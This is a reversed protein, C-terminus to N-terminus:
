QVIGECNSATSRVFPVAWFAKGNRTGVLHQSKADFTLSVAEGSAALDVKGGANSGSLAPGQLCPGGCTDIHGTLATGQQVLTMPSGTLCAVLPGPSPEPTGEGWSWDGSLDAATVKSAQGGTIPPPSGTVAPATSCAALLLAVVYALRM